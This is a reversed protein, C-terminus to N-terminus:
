RRRMFWTFYRVDDFRLDLKFREDEFGEKKLELEHIRSPVKVILPTKGLYSGDM